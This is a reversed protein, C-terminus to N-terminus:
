WVGKKFHFPSIQVWQSPCAPLPSRALLSPICSEFAVRSLLQIKNTGVLSHALCCARRDSSGRNWTRLILNPRQVKCFQAGAQIWWSGFHHLPRHPKPGASRTIASMSLHKEPQKRFTSLHWTCARASRRRIQMRLVDNCCTSPQCLRQILATGPYLALSHILQALRQSHSLHTLTESLCGHFNRHWEPM